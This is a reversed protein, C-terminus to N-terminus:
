RRGRPASVPFSPGPRPMSRFFRNAAATVLYVAIWAVVIIAVIKWLIPRGAPPQAEGQARERARAKRTGLRYVLFALLWAGMFQGVDFGTVSGDPYPAYGAMALFVYFLFFCGVVWGWRPSGMRKRSDLYAALGCSLGFLLRLIGASHM